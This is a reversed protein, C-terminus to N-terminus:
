APHSRVLHDFVAPHLPVDFALEIMQGDLATVRATMMQLGPLKLRLPQGPDVVALWLVRITEATLENVRVFSWPTMGQRIECVMAVPVPSAQHSSPPIPTYQNM